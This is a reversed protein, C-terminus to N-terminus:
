YEDDIEKTSKSVGVRCVSFWWFFAAPINVGFALATLWAPSSLFGIQILYTKSETDKENLPNINEPEGELDKIKAIIKDHFIQLKKGINKYRNLVVDSKLFDTVSLDIRSKIKAEFDAKNWYINNISVRGPPNLIKYKGEDTSMYTECEKVIAHIDEEVM